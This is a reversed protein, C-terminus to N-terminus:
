ERLSGDVPGVLDDIRMTAVLIEGMTKTATTMEPQPPPLKGPLGMETDTDGDEELTGVDCVRVNVAVTLFSADALPTVHSTEALPQGLAIAGISEQPTRLLTAAV